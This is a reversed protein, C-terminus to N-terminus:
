TGRGWVPSDSVNHAGVGAQEEGQQEKTTCAVGPHGGWRSILRRREEKAVKLVIVPGTEADRLGVEKLAGAIMVADHAPIHGVLEENGLVIGGISGVRIAPCANVPHLQFTHRGELPSEAKGGVLGRRLLFRFVSRGGFAFRGSGSTVAKGEAPHFSRCLREYQCVLTHM